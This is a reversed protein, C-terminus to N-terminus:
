LSHSLGGDFGDVDREVQVLDEGKGIFKLRELLDYFMDIPFQLFIAILCM